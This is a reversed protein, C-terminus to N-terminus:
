TAFLFIRLTRKSVMTHSTENSGPIINQFWLVLPKAVELYVMAQGWWFWGALKVVVVNAAVNIFRGIGEVGCM